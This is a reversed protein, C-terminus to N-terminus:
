KVEIDYVDYVIARAGFSEKFQALGANLYQGDNETSIGFDFYRVDSYRRNILDDFLFAMSALTEGEHNCGTYQCHVVCPSEYIVVGGLMVDEKYVAHLAINEPFQEALRQMESVSHVPCVKHKDRLVDKMIAMFGSWDSTQRLCLRNGTARKLARRRNNNLGLRDSKLISFSVDRRILRAKHRFLAYLDEEAPLRHYIHPIPKYTIQRISHTRAYTMLAEFLELMLSTNMRSDCLVGGFTLGGHSILVDGKVNAPLAGIMRDGKFFLLSYDQFRDSHYDMYHRNFLFVGNKSRDVFENWLSLHEKQYELVTM